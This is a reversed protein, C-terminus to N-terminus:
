HPQGIVVKPFCKVNFRQIQKLANVGYLANQIQGYVFDMKVKFANVKMQSSLVYGKKLMLYVISVMVREVTQQCLDVSM